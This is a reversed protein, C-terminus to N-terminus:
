RCCGGNPVAPVATFGSTAPVPAAPVAPVVPTAGPVVTGGPPCCPRGTVPRPHCCDHACGAALMTAGLILAACLFRFNM